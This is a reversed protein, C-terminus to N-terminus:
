ERSPSPKDPFGLQALERDLFDLNWIEVMPELGASSTALHHGRTDFVISTVLGPQGPLRLDLRPAGPNTVSWLLIQGQPSGAALKRGDPSFALAVLLRASQEDMPEIRGVISLSRTDILTIKGTRDGAALLRGDPRLSLSTLGEPLPQPPTVLSALIRGGKEEEDLDWIMLRNSGGLMYIRKGDPSIQIAFIERGGNPRPTANGRRNKPEGERPPSAPVPDINLSLEETLPPPPPTVEQVRGPADARWISVESARVAAQVPGAGGFEEARRSSESARVLAMQRGDATRALLTQYGLFGMSTRPLRLITPAQSQYCGPNWIRLGRLDHALLRGEADFALSTRVFRDRARDRESGRNRSEQFGPPASISAMCRNGGSRYSLADGSNLGIALCGDTSFAMSTPRADFGGLQIRAASDSVKWVATSSSFGSIAVTQGDPTFTLDTIWDSASVVALMKHAVADWIEVQNGEVAALLTGQPNFRLLRPSGRSSTLSSLFTGAERDWFQITNGTGTAMVNNAGLSLASLNEAQTDITRSEAGTLASFLTITATSTTQRYSGIAITKGDPSFAVPLPRKPEFRVRDLLRPEDEMRNLDWLLIEVQPPSPPGADADPRRGDGREHQRGPGRPSTPEEITILRASSSNALVGRISRGPRELDHLPSGTRADILRIGEEDPRVVALVHGAMALRNNWSRPPRRQVNTTANNGGTGTTSASASTPNAGAPSAAEDRKPTAPAGTTDPEAVPHPPPGLKAVLSITEIRQRETFNWLTVQQGDDSLSALMSGGPGFEIGTTPGTPLAPRPELDRLVLFDVALDRLMGMSFDAGQDVAMAEPDPAVAKRLLELGTARRSPIESILVRSSHAALERRMAIRAKNAEEAKAVMAESKAILALETEKLAKRAEAAAHLIRVYAYTAIALVIVAAATTVSTIGPHRRAVRWFRGLVSIRRARVPERNLFRALDEALATASAYRDSPRKALTKLVITELDRPIRREVQRPPTPERGGIQDILEAASAGDFPPRLTLLEYLTAGLSYVDTRDDISRSRTQEPSMYRPTGLLSDQHTLGPDALRRALGFDTVWITGQADILLNSPKVDRHIVGHHHAHSLAEAAQLGVEAVWRFYASGHPPDFPPESVEDDRAHADISGSCLGPECSGSAGHRLELFAERGGIWSATSDNRSLPRPWAPLAPRVLPLPSEFAAPAPVHAGEGERGQSRSPDGAPRDAPAGGNRRDFEDIPIHRPRSWPWSESVRIWLRNLRSGSASSKLSSPGHIEENSRAEGAAQLPRTRRLYRLVRDLGSGEIRQMAYYCLGGAQGVDFVPVIHTHHLGAATRAENLFRRRASSDPAAHTGLVKLAVPRDLGMHVAEYVTGMGGRGLEGVIRYGAIRRGSELNRGAGGGSRSGSGSASTHGVLGHVLELGDLAARIDESLDPYRAAFTDADPAQGQEVLSLYTEIAEGLREDNDSAPLDEPENRHAATM